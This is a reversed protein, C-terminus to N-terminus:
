RIAGKVQQPRAGGRQPKEAAPRVVPPLPTRRAVTFTSLYSDGPGDNATPFPVLGRPNSDVTQGICDVIFDGRVEIEVYSEGRLFISGDGDVGDRLWAGSVVIRATRVCGPPDDAVRETEVAVIPVRYYERWCGETQDTMIAMAFCDPKLTDARVPRSFTVWFDATSYESYHPEKADYGLAALFLEFPVPPADRRHWHAWGIKSIHTLDCGNILDFLLDNRKVLRRPGCADHVATIAWDGCQDQGLTLCALEVGNGLDAKTCDGVDSLRVCDAGLTLGTLHECLCACGGRAHKACQGLEIRRQALEDLRQEHKARIEGIAAPEGVYHALAEAMERQIKEEDRDIAALEEGLEACCPTEPDCCCDIECKQPQCCQDCAIKRLAYIITECTRDWEKRKCDCEGKLIVPDLTREAYHATLLWCDDVNPQLRELRGNLKGDVSIPKGDGDFILLNDLTLDTSKSQWLERGLRDLALGEGITLSGANPGLPVALPFGYVVGWGHIARNLLHRRGNLFQQEVTYSDKTLRKGLFYNNRSGSPCDDACCNRPVARARRSTIATTTINM